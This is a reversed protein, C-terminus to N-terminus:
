EDPESLDIQLELKRLQEKAKILFQKKEEINMDSISPVTIPDTEKKKAYLYASAEKAAQLRMEPSITYGIKTSGQANEMVYVESDYGLGQWDGKAMLMLIEFPDIGIKEVIEEIMQTRRNKSGLARGPSLKHGKEFGM